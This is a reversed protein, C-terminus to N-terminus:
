NIILDSINEVDDNKPTLIARSIMYNVNTFNKILNLYIFNILDSLKRKPIIIDSPLEIM